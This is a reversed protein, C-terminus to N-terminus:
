QSGAAGTEKKEEKEKLSQAQEESLTIYKTWPESIHRSQQAIDQGLVEPKLKGSTWGFGVMPGYRVIMTVIRESMFIMTTSVACLNLLSAMSWSGLQGTMALM